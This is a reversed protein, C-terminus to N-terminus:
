VRILEDIDFDWKSRTGVVNDWNMPSIGSGPRKVALNESSFLDGASITKSAVISKRVAFLNKLEGPSPRKIGDGMAKEVDRISSVMEKFEEPILSAAHDPGALSRDLTLHKEIVCAGLAVAAIPTTIGETHDSLGIPIGFASKMSTMARLNVEDIPTPYQSNCHLITIGKEDLGNTILIQLARSVEDFSSLGTSMVVPKGQRAVHILYPKNTIEGSPTKIIQIGLDVLLDISQLDFPSSLFEIGRERCHLILDVHGAQDLEYNKLMGYQNDDGYEQRLQYEAKKASRTVLAEARFTQFKVFDAGSDAASDILQKAVELSGGHNVGAEAIIKVAKNM